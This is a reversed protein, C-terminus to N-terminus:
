PDGRFAAALAIGTVKKVTRQDQPDFERAGDLVDGFLDLRVPLARGPPFIDIIGGRVAFEGAESVTPTHAYGMRVLYARLADVDLREGM